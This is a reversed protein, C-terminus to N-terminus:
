LNAATYERNAGLDITCDVISCRHFEIPNTWTVTRYTDTLTAGANLDAETVTRARFDSNFDVEGGPGIVLLAITGASAYNLKGGEGYYAAVAGEEQYLAGGYQYVNRLPIESHVTGGFIGNIDLATADDSQLINRLTVTGAKIFGIKDFEANNAAGYTPGIVITAGSANINLETNDVGDIEMTAGAYVNWQAANNCTLYKTGSGYDNVVNTAAGGVDFALPVATSTGLDISCGEQITVSNVAVGSLDGGICNVTATAPFVVDENVAPVVATSWNGGVTPDTSVAGTWYVTAM